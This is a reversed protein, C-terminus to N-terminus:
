ARFLEFRDVGPDEAVFAEFDRSLSGPATGVATM